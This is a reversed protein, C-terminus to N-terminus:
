PRRPHSSRAQAVRRSGDGRFLTKWPSSTYGTKLSDIYRPVENGAVLGAFICAVLSNAGLRNAGHYQFESEGVVFCGPINTMQRFRTMRDPDDAAPWDVWAGGMSYHVAPFIKM